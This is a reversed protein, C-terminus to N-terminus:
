GHTSQRSKETIEACALHLFILNPNRRGPTIPEECLPESPVPASSVLDGSVSGDEAIPPYRLATSGGEDENVGTQTGSANEM